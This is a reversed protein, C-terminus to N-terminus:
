YSLAALMFAFAIVWIALVIITLIGVFKFSLKLQQFSGGLVQQDNNSLATQMRTAFRFLFLCPFFYIVAFLIYVLTAGLAYGTGYAAGEMKSMSLGIASGAFFSICVTIGCAVFGVIALFKAWRATESLNRAILPDIQLEFLSETSQEM